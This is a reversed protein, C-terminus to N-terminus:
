KSEQQEPLNLKAQDGRIIFSKAFHLIEGWPKTSLRITEAQESTTAQLWEQKKDALKKEIERVFLAYGPHQVFSRMVSAENAAGELKAIQAASLDAM